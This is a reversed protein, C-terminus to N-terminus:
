YRQVTPLSTSQIGNSNQSVRSSQHYLKNLHFLLYFLKPFFFSLYFYRIYAWSFPSFLLQVFSTTSAFFKLNCDPQHQSLNHVLRNVSSLHIEEIQWSFKLGFSFILFFSGGRDQAFLFQTHFARLKADV